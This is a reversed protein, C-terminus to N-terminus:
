QEAEMKPLKVAQPRNWDELVRNESPKPIPEKGAIRVRWPDAVGTRDVEMVLDSGSLDKFWVVSDGNVAGYYPDTNDDCEVDGLAKWTDIYKPITKTAKPSFGQKLFIAKIDAVTMYYGFWGSSPETRPGKARAKATCLALMTVHSKM